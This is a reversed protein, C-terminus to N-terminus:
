HTRRLVDNRLEDTITSEFLQRVPAHLETLKAGVWESLEAGEARGEWSSDVDILFYRGQPPSDIILPGTPDVAPQRMLGYRLVVRHGEGFDFLAASQHETPPSSFHYISSSLSPDIYQDWRAGDPLQEEDIEDIYRLGARVLVPGLALAEVTAVVTSTLAHFDEFRVYASTEYSLVQPGLAVAHRRQLDFVRAGASSASAGGPGITLQQHPPPGAIPFETKLADAFAKTASEPLEIPEFRIEFTVLKLPSNPYIEREPDLSTM